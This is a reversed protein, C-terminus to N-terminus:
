LEKETIEEPLKNVDPLNEVMGAKTRRLEALLQRRYSLLTERHESQLALNVLEEPDSELDYLEEVENEVLTRIYKYRGNRLFIWWPVGNWGPREERETDKGYYYKTNEMLVPHSWEAEPNKLVPTIDHGHMDWPLPIGAVAFFTPILDQGGVPHECVKNRAVLGPLRLILPARLNADYPAYKWKFGHQGWAFGQDSTFVILTNDIQGTEQLADLLRGVGEDLSKVARNYKEVAADLGVPKGDRGKKWVGYNKMYTPKTPRPPFIDKPVPVPSTNEYDRKHREAPTYPGHVGGYCLWLYWPKSSTKKRKIYDVALDTYRDTSYGGLPRRDGGNTRVLTGHYYARSNGAGRDWIVSYDWDRGHGTDEGLHWKGICATEYGNARFVSPWFPLVSPDYTAMPYTELRLSQAGHQLLGTLATVRSPQCWAGTYCHTFRIGEGALRDINPTSVWDHAEPYCSVSRISQDDTFIYLINPKGVAQPVSCAVALVVIAEWM